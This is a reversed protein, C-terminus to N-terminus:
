TQTQTSSEEKNETLDRQLAESSVVSATDSSAAETTDLSAKIKNIFSEWNDPELQILTKIITEYKNYPSKNHQVAQSYTTAKSGVVLKRAEYYPINNQHKVTIVEMEQRWSECSRTCMPHNGGCNPFQCDIHHDPYRQGCKGVYKMGEVIIGMTAMNKANTVDCHTPFINGM